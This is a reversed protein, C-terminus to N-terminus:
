LNSARYMLQQGDFGILTYPLHGPTHVTFEPERGFAVRAVQLPTFAPHVDLLPPLLRVNHEDHVAMTSM